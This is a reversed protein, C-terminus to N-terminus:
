LLTVSNLEPYHFEKTTEPSNRNEEKNKFKAVTYADMKNENYPVYLEKLLDHHNHMINNNLWKMANEKDLIVPMRPEKTKPNNHIKQMLANAKTTVIAVTQYMEGTEIFTWNDFIGAILMPDGSKLFIHYPYANNNYHHYEYFADAPIVCRNTKAPNRFAPKQFLSESRANITQNRIKKAEEFDKVWFPILGWFFFNLKLKEDKTFVPISPHEFGTVFYKAKEDFNVLELEKELERIEEDSIGFLRAYKIKKETLYKLNYCM